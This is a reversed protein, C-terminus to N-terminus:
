GITFHYGQGGGVQLKLEEDLKEIESQAEQILQPGNLAAGGQPGAITAFKSRAQGLAMKCLALTYRKLWEKALYDNLLETTPRYNYCYLLIEEGFQREDFRVSLKPGNRCKMTLFLAHM